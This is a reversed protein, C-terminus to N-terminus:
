AVAHQEIIGASMWGVISTQAIHIYAKQIDNSIVDQSLPRRAREIRRVRSQTRM